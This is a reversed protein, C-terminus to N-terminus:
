FTFDFVFSVLGVDEQKEGLGMEQGRFSAGAFKRSINEMQLKLTSSVFLDWRVGAALTSQDAAAYLLALQEEIPELLTAAPLVVEAKSVQKLQSYTLYPAFNKWRWGATVHWSNIDPVVSKKIYRQAYETSFFWSSTDLELGVSLYDTPKLESSTEAALRSLEPLNQMADVLTSHIASVVAASTSTQANVYGLRFRAPGSEFLFSTGIVDRLRTKTQNPLSQSGQGIFLQGTVDTSGVKYQRSIDAGDIFNLPIQIYTEQPLRVATNEFGVERLQSAMLFPAPIRGVRFALRDSVQGQLYAWELGPTFDGKDNQRSLVQLTSSIYTNLDTDLQIGFRTDLKFTGSDDAGDAGIGVRYESEASDSVAYGLTGFGSVDFAPAASSSHSIAVTLTLATVTIFLPRM